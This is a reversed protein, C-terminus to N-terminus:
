SLRAAAYYDRNPERTDTIPCPFADLPSFTGLNFNPLWSELMYSLSQMYFPHTQTLIWEDLLTYLLASERHQHYYLHIEQKYDNFRIHSSVLPENQGRFRLGETESLKFGEFGFALM